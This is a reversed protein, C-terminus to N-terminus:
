RKTLIPQEPIVESRRLLLSDVSNAMPGALQIVIASVMLSLPQAAATFFGMPLVLITAVLMNIMMAFAAPRTLLGVILLFGGILETFISLYALPAPVGMGGYYQLTLELGPLGFWGFVKGLGIGFFIVGMTARLLLICINLLTINTETLLKM